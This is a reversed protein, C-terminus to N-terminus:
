KGRGTITNLTDVTLLLASIVMVGVGIAYQLTPDLLWKEKATLVHISMLLALAYLGSYWSLKNGFIEDKLKKWDMRIM